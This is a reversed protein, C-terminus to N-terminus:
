AKGNRREGKRTDFICNLCEKCIFWMKRSQGMYIGGKMESAPHTDCIECMTTHLHEKDKNSM